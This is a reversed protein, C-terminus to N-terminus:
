QIDSQYHFHTKKEVGWFMEATESQETNSLCTQEYLTQWQQVHISRRYIKTVDHSPM